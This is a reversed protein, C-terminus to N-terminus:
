VGNFFKRRNMGATKVAPLEQKKMLHNNLLLGRELSLGPGM